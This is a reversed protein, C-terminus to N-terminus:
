PVEASTQSRTDTGLETSVATVFGQPNIIVTTPWTRIGFREAIVGHTDPILVVDEPLRSRFADLERMDAGDIVVATVRAPTDAEADREEISPLMAGSLLGQGQAFVVKTKIGRVAVPPPPCSTLYDSLDALLGGKWATIRAGVVVGTQVPTPAPEGSAFLYKDLVAGLARADLPGGHAWCLGGNATVLRWEIPSREMPVALAESWAEYVDENVILPAELEASVEALERMRQAGQQGLAGDRFLVLVLLGADRRQSAVLGDRLAAQDDQSWEDGVFIALTNVTAAGSRRGAVDILASEALPGVQDNAGSEWERLFLRAPRTVHTQVDVGFKVCQRTATVPVLEGTAPHVHVGKVTLCVRGMGDLGPVPQTGAIATGFKSKKGAPRRLMFRDAFTAAGPPGTNGWWTWSWALSDVRGGPIWSEFATFGNKEPTFDFTAVPPRRPSLHIQGRAIVGDPSYVLQDFQAAPQPDITGLQKVLEERASKLSLADGLQGLANEMGTSMADAIKQRVEPPLFAGFTGHLTVQPLDKQVLTFREKTGDFLVELLLVVTFDWNFLSEATRAQGGLTIVVGGSTTGLFLISGAVWHATAATMKIKYTIDITLVDAGGIFSLDVHDVRKYHLQIGFGARFADLERQIRAVVADSAIAIAFDSGDLLDQTISDINGQPQADGLTAPVAVMSHNMGLNLSCMSGRRFRRSVRHPTPTFETELLRRVLKTIRADIASPDGLAEIDGFVNDSVATGTFSVTSGIVRIWLYDAAHSAWGYCNPDIADLRYEARVTGHILEPLRTTDPDAVYRARIGFEFRFRDKSAHVLEIRPVAVQVWATGRMGDIPNPDGIRLRVSHQFHPLDNKIGHNQHISALLRNLTGGSVQLVVEFDGTLPNAM